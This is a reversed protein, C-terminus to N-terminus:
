HDSLPSQKKQFHPPVLSFILLFSIVGLSSLSLLMNCFSVCLWSAVTFLICARFVYSVEVGVKTGCGSQIIQPSSYPIQFSSLDQGSEIGVHVSWILCLRNANKDISLKGIANRTILWWVWSPAGDNFWTVPTFLCTAGKPCHELGWWLFPTDPSYRQASSCSPM